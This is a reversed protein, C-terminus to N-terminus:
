PQPPEVNTLLEDDPAPQGRKTREALWQKRLGQALTAFGVRRWLGRGAARAQAEARLYLMERDFPFETYVIVRGGELLALNLDKGNADLYGLFRGHTDTPPNNLRVV